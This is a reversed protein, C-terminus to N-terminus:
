GAEDFARKMVKLEDAFERIVPAAHRAVVADLAEQEEDLCAVEVRGTKLERQQLDELDSTKIRIPKSNEDVHGFEFELEGKENTRTSGGTLRVLDRQYKPRIDDLSDYREGGRRMCRAVNSLVDEYRSDERLDTLRAAYARPLPATGEDTYGGIAESAVRLCSRPNKDDGNLATDYRERDERTLSTVYAAQADGQAFQKEAERLAEIQRAVGYGADLRFARIASPTPLGFMGHPQTLKLPESPAPRWEFGADKMCRATVSDRDTLLKTEGDASYGAAEEVSGAAVPRGGDGGCGVATALLLALVIGRVTMKEEGRALRVRRRAEAYSNEDKETRVASLALALEISHSPIPHPM